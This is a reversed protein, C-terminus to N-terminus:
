THPVQSRVASAPIQPHRVEERLSGPYGPGAWVQTQLFWSGSGWRHPVCPARPAGSPKPYAPSCGGTSPSALAQNMVGLAETDDM